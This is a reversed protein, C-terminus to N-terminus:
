QDWPSLHFPVCFISVCTHFISYPMSAHPVLPWWRLLSLGPAAYLTLSRSNTFHLLSPCEQQLPLLPSAGLSSFVPGRWFDTLPETLESCPTFNSFFHASLSLAWCAPAVRSLALEVNTAVNSYPGWEFVAPSAWQDYLIPDNFINLLPSGYEKSIRPPDSTLFRCKVSSQHSPNMGLQIQSLSQYSERWWNCQDFLWHDERRFVHM